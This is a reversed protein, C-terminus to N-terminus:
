RRPDSQPVVGLEAARATAERRTRADLKGLVAAVHNDVTRVSVVLRAAIEANTLGGAVLRLIELQRDTLGAPNRRTADQPGRPIRTVGLERLEARVRRALPEAGLGDLISLAALRDDPEPSSALAQAQEYPSGIEAWRQAAESWRGDRMMTFPDDAAPALLAYGADDSWYALAAREQSTGGAAVAHVAAAAARRAGADDGDLWAAEARAV